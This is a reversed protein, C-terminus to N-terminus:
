KPCGYSSNYSSGYGSERYQRALDPGIKVAMAKEVRDGASTLLRYLREVANTRSPDVPPTELGARERSLRKYAAQKAARPTKERIESLLASPSLHVGAEQEGTIEGHLKRLEELMGANHSAYVENILAVENKRLGLAKIRRNSVKPPSFRLPPMDWRLECKKSLALLEEKNLDFPKARRSQQTTQQLREKLQLVEAQLRARERALASYKRQLTETSAPEAGTRAAPPIQGSTPDEDDGSSNVKRPAAGQEILAAEGPGVELKKGSADAATVKGEYVTVLVAAMAAAVAAAGVLGARSARMPNVEVRFCTGLVEITGRPTKVKFTAEGRDVRYFADGTTQEVSVAASTKGWSIHTGAEAVVVAGASLAITERAKVARQGSSDSSSAGGRLAAYGGTVALMVGAALAGARWWGNRQAPRKARRLVAEAFDAGPEAAPWADLAAREEATFADAQDEHDPPLNTV